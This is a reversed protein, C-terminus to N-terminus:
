TKLDDSVRATEQVKSLLESNVTMLEENLSQLEERSAELEETASHLEENMAQLEENSARLAENSSQQHQMSNRLLDESGELAQRLSDVTEERESTAPLEEELPDDPLPTLLDCTVSLLDMQHAADRYPRLSLDIGLKM